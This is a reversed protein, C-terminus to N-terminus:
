SGRPRKGGPPAPPLSVAKPGLAAEAPNDLLKFKRCEADYIRGQEQRLIEREQRHVERLREREAEHALAIERWKLAFEFELGGPQAFHPPPAVQKGGALSPGVADGEKDDGDADIAFEVRLPRPSNSLIFLNDSLLQQVSSAVSRTDYEVFGYLKSAGGLEPPEFEVRCDVVSGFQRFAEKLEPAKVQPALDGVFLTSTNIAWRVKLPLANDSPGAATGVRLRTGDLDAKIKTAAAPTRMKVFAFGRSAKTESHTLVQCDLPDEYKGFAASLADQLDEPPVADPLHGVFLTTRLSVHRENNARRM